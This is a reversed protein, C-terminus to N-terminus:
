LRHCALCLRSRENTTRLMGAYHQTNHPDHCTTCQIRGGPLKMRGDSVVSAASHFKEAGQPYRVGVPHSTLRNRGGGPGLTGAESWTAAHSSVFVDTAVVGDHCSLCLLSANDLLTDGWGTPRLARGEGGRTVRLTGDPAVQRAPQHPTHCPTCLDTGLRGGDSFDHKSGILGSAYRSQLAGAADEAAPQSAAAYRTEQPYLPAALAPLLAVIALCLGAASPGLRQGALAHLCRTRAFQVRIIVRSSYPERAHSAIHSPPAASSM